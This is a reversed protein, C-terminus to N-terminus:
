ISKNKYFDDKILYYTGHDRWKGNILLYKKNIGLLEFGCSSLVGKSRENDLLASAEIRHLECENFAYDLFLKVAEKMYGKGQEDKDISYGLIGSKFVGYVINSLKMKGILIEDKFIGLEINTGNFFQRYSENLINRQNDLTYFDSDRTPEFAELHKKNKIYYDLLEKANAPTLNRLVINKGELEICSYKLKQNYEVRTIGLSLEDLYEGKNYDNQSLIGELTFGLDLFPNIDINDYVRINIKFININKFVANLVAILTDKLLIYKDERYFRLRIDCRKNLDNMEVINFRGITINDMDKVLYESDDSKNVEVKIMLNSKM